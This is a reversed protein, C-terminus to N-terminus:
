ESYSNPEEFLEHQIIEKGYNERHACKYMKLVDIKTDGIVHGKLNLNFRTAFCFDGDEFGFDKYIKIPPLKRGVKKPCLFIDGEARSSLEIKKACSCIEFYFLNKV